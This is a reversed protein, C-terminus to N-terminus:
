LGSYYQRMTEKDIVNNCYAGKECNGRAEIWPLELHTLDSLWHPEKDGYYDLVAEVTEKEDKSLKVGSLKDDFMTTDKDIIFQGKHLQFLEKCVPGNAWAEFEEDFLPKDDWALSWSQCYYLIKQLKMTTIPGINNIVYHAIDYISRNM